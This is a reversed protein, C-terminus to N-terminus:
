RAEGAEAIASLKAALEQMRDDAAHQYRMAAGATSHGALLMLEALTAGAIAANTLGTHRLAHFNLDTRGALRRAEYYGHGKRKVNGEHDLTSERGYFSSPSLQGGDAAPFLLGHVGPQAHRLLHERVDGLVHPPIPLDRIGAASKPGKVKREIIAKGDDSTGRVRVVGRRVHITAAKVDVDSRRLEALEGFRLGTWAALLVMLRRREPMAAAIIALEELTAPKVQRARSTSGGGRVKAPNATTILSRDVATALITRLLAYAHAQYTPRDIAVLAYWRDVDDPTIHTLPTDGFTPLIFRDLLDRYHDRTRDALPKGKVRRNLIWTEAFEGFTLPKARKIATRVAPPEWRGFDILEKEDDLWKSAARKSTFTHPASHRVVEARGGRTERLTGYPDSYEARYRGSPLKKIAGWERPESKGAM